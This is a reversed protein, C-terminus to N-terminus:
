NTNHNEVYSIFFFHYCRFNSVSARGTSDDPTEGSIDAAIVIAVTWAVVGGAYWRGGGGGEGGGGRARAGRGGGGGGRCSFTNEGEVSGGVRGEEVVEGVVVEEEVEGEGEGEEVVERDVITGPRSQQVPGRLHGEGDVM